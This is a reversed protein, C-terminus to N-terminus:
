ISRLQKEELDRGAGVQPGDGASVSKRTLDLRFRASTGGPIPQQPPLLPDFVKDKLLRPPSSTECAECEIQLLSNFDRFRHKPLVGVARCAQGASFGPRGLHSGRRNIFGKDVCAILM